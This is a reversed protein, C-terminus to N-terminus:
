IKPSFILCLLCTLLYFRKLPVRTVNSNCLLCLVVSNYHSFVQETCLKQIATVTLKIDLIIFSSTMIM